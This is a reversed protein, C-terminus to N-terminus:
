ADFDDSTIDSEYGEFDEATAGSEGLPEGHAVFLIGRASKSIFPKGGLDKAQDRTKAYFSLRVAVTAGAYIFTPAEEATLMRMSGPATKIYCAFKKKSTVRIYQHGYTHEYEEEDGFSLTYDNLSSPVKDGFTEKLVFDRAKKIKDVSTEDLVVQVTYQDEGTNQNPKAKYVNSVLKGSITVENQPKAM